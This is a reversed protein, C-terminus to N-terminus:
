ELTLTNLMEDIEEFTPDNSSIDMLIYHDLKETKVLVCLARFDEGEFDFTCKACEATYDGVPFDRYIEVETYSPYSRTLYDAADMDEQANESRISFVTKGMQYPGNAGTLTDEPWDFRLAPAANGMQTGASLTLGILLLFVITALAKKM